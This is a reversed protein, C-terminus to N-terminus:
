RRVVNRPGDRSGGIIPWGCPWGRIAFDTADGPCRDAHHEAMIQMLQLTCLRKMRLLAQLSDIKNDQTSDTLAAQLHESLLITRQLSQDFAQWKDTEGLSIAREQDNMEMFSYVLSDIINRRPTFARETQNIRMFTRTNGYVMWAAISFIAIVIAYGIAVKLPVSTKFM